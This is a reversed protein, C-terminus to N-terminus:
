SFNKIKNVIQIPSKLENEWIVLTKYGYQSYTKLREKDDEQTNGHWYDGFFEIIKKNEENIFDPNFSQTEGDFWIKSNGVYIFNLNYQKILNIIIKEPKNPKEKNSIRAKLAGGNKMIESIKRNIGKKIRTLKVKEVVELNYMPNNEKMRKPSEKNFCSSCIKSNKQKIGGCKLCNNHFNNKYLEKKLELIEKRNKQYYEKRKAKLKEKNKQYYEKRQEDIKEKNEKHYKRNYELIESKNKQYYNKGWEKEKQKDKYAM